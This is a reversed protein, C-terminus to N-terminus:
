ALRARMHRAVERQRPEGSALLDAYVLLDPAHAARGEHAEGWSGPSQWFRRRVIINAPEGDPVQPRRWRAAMIAAADLEDVYLTLGRGAIGEAAYEGSVHVLHGNAIWADPSPEGVFRALETRRALGAPFASAWQDLLDGRRTLRRRGVTLHHDEELATLTSQVSGVSVGATHALLRVPAAAMEPWELLCFVVQARAASMLNWSRPGRAARLEDAADWDRAARRAPAQRGRVDVLLGPARLYLNGRGDAFGAAAQRALDAAAPSFREALLFGDKRARAAVDVASGDASWQATWRYHHGDLEVEVMDDDIRLALHHKDAARSARDAVERRTISPDRSM